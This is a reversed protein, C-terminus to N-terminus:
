CRGEFEEKVIGMAKELAQNHSQSMGLKRNLSLRALIHDRIEEAKKEGLDVGEIEARVELIYLYKGMAAAQDELLEVPCSLEFDLTKAKAKIIIRHLREYKGKLEKYEAKMRDKYTDKIPM